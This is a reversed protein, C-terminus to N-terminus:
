KRSNKTKIKFLDEQSVNKEFFDNVLDMVHLRDILNAMDDTSQTISKSIGDRSRWLYCTEYILSVNNAFYHMPITVPLDEYLIKEPFKFSHKKWFSFKILKNWATTDYFLEPSETIHTVDKTGSFSIKHIKSHWYHTSNFRLVYGIVMDSKNKIASNYMLEYANSPVIDDSDLFIIYDGDVFECGHNRAHGLGQNEEYVYEINDYEDAYKKAIIGSSDTSGDDVLIIQLNRDYGNLDFDNITQNIVSNICEELFEQVNYVPIIVSIRTKM